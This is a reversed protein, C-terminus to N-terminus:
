GAVPEGGCVRAACRGRFTADEEKRRKLLKSEGTNVGVLHLVGTLVKSQRAAYIFLCDILRYTPLYTIVSWKSRLKRDAERENRM